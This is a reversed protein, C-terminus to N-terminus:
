LSSLASLTFSSNYLLNVIVQQLSIILIFLSNFYHVMQVTCSSLPMLSKTPLALIM